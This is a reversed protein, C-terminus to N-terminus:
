KIQLSAFPENLLINTTKKKWILWMLKHKQKSHRAVFNMVVYSKIKISISLFDEDNEKERTVYGFTDCQKGNKVTHIM